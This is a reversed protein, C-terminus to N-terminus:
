FKFGLTIAGKTRSSNINVLPDLGVQDLVVYPNYGEARESIRIGLDIFFRDERIGLGFSLRNNYFDDANFPSQEWSYGVRLRLSQYALETGLRINTSSALKNQIDRNLENTYIAEGPDSSYATGNYNASSYDVYEIDANVFGKVVGLNYISGISGVARWPNSIKYRFNGAPSDYSFTQPAGDIFSYTMSTSYDDTFRFWTPSHIAGGLRLIKDLKYIFGFKFNLGLGSTNLNETYSLGNFAPVNNEPDTETYTKTEEFTGFPVGVSLGINIRRQYEGAWGLTLENIGGKQVIEQEKLINAEPYNLFDTEYFNDGDVDFIAGTNYAPFAIFDDLQDETFTNAKEAFMTTISGKSKGSVLINRNFDAIRSFGIAINSSTWSSGKPNTSVVFGLNDLGLGSRKRNQLQNRDAAFYASTKTFNLSPTINFESIRYDAIGAPNINIVSFDGGMAGFASGVGMTRATGSPDLDSWRVIDSINQSL